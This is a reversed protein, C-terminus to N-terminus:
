SSAALAAATPQPLYEAAKKPFQLFLVELGEDGASVQYADEDETVFIQEWAGMRRDNHLMCGSLVIYFQGASGAPSMGRLSSGPPLRLVRVALGDSALPVLDETQIERLAALEGLGLAPMVSSSFHRKPGPLMQDRFEPIYLAGSEYVPRMTFYWLGEPGAKLPGYGTYAGAYHVAVPGLDHKGISGSGKVFVQFQNNRHFHTGAVADPAMEILFVTPSLQEDQGSDMWEGKFYQGNPSPLARRTLIGQEETGVFIM